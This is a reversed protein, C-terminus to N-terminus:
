SREIKVLEVHFILTAGGPIRPPAGNDGYGLHPPIKLKRKEGQCAGLLGQEWGRIVMGSGLKFDIPEDRKYSNDFEEGDTLMGKYHVYVQDGKQAKMPCSEPKFKVGIQLSTADKEKSEVLAVALVLASVFLAKHSFM